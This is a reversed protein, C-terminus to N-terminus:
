RLIRRHPYSEKSRNGREAEGEGVTGIEIVEVHCRQRIGGSSASCRSRDLGYIRGPLATFNLEGTATSGASLIFVVSHEGPRIHLRCLLDRARYAQQERVMGWCRAATEEGDLSQVQHSEHAVFVAEETAALHPAPYLWYNLGGGSGCGAFVLTAAVVLPLKLRSM